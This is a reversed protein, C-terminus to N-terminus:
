LFYLKRRTSQSLGQCSKIQHSKIKSSGNKSKNLKTKTTTTRFNKKFLIRQYKKSEVFEEFEKQAEDQTLPNARDYEQDYSFLILPVTYFTLRAEDYHETSNPKAETFLAHSFAKWPVCYSACSVGICIYSWLSITNRIKYEFFM